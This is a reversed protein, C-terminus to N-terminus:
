EDSSNDGSFIDTCLAWDWEQQTNSDYVVLYDELSDDFLEYGLVCRYLDVGNDEIEADCSRGDYEVEHIITGFQEPYGDLSYEIYNITLKSPDFVEGDDLPVRYSGFIKGHTIYFYDLCNEKFDTQGDTYFIRNKNIADVDIKTNEDDNIIELGAMSPGYSGSWFAESFSEGGQLHIELFCEKDAEFDEKLYDIDVKDLRHYQFEGGFNKFTLRLKHSDLDDDSEFWSLDDDMDDEFGDDIVDVVVDDDHWSAVHDVLSDSGVEHNIDDVNDNHSHELSERKAKRVKRGLKKRDEELAAKLTLDNDCLYSDDSGAIQTKLGFAASLKAELNGVKTNKKATLDGGKEDKKRISALTADDDAFSRGDYVRITLGFEDLFQSRLTKVKMRGSINM